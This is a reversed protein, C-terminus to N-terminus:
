GAQRRSAPAAGRRIDQLVVAHRNFAAYRYSIANAAVFEAWARFQGERYGWVGHYDDLIVVSDPTLRHHIQALVYATAEYTDCDLHVLAIPGANAALFGPLTDAFWGPLLTVNSRVRPLRGQLDFTGRVQGVGKWDEQLGRFSDFGFVRGRARRALFNLSYGKFVGFELWLGEAGANRCAFALLGERSRIALAAAMATRIYDASERVAERELEDLVNHDLSFFRHLTGVPGEIMQRLSRGLWGLGAEPVNSGFFAM